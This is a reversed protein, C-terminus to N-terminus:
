AAVSKAVLGILDVCFYSARDRRLVKLNKLRM